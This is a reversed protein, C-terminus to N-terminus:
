NCERTAAPHRVRKAIKQEASSRFRNRNVCRQSINLPHTQIFYRLFQIVDPAELHSVQESLLEARLNNFKMMCASPTDRIVCGAGVCSERSCIIKNKM